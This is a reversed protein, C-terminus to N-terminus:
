TNKKRTVTKMKRVPTSSRKPCLIMSHPFPSKHPEKIRATPNVNQRIAKNEVDPHFELEYLEKIRMNTRRQLYQMTFQLRVTSRQLSNLTDLLLQKWNCIDAESIEIEDEIKTPRTYM